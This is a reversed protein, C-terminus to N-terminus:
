KARVPIGPASDAFAYYRSGWYTIATYFPVGCAQALYSDVGSRIALMVVALNVGYAVGILALFKILAPWAAGTHGFSWRRNLAFSLAIGCGYGLANALVDDLRLLGKCVYIVALGSLTNLVGVILFRLPTVADM